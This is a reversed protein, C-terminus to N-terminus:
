DLERCKIRKCEAEISEQFQKECEPSWAFAFNIFMGWFLLCLILIILSSYKM